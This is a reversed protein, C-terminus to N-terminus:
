PADRKRIRAKSARDYSDALAFRAKVRFEELRDRRRTLENVAMTELVRGQREILARVKERAASRLLTSISAPASVPAVAKIERRLRRMLDGYGQYSEVATQRTRAFDRHQRNLANLEQDLERLHTRADEYRKDYEAYWSWELVGRLRKLREGFRQGAEDSQPTVIKELHALQESMIQEGATVLLDPRPAKQMAQLQQEIRDRQELRSRMESDLRSFERDIAPLLPEYHASRQRIIDEFADLDGSWVELRKHLQELDLYNKLSEQFDNSAMLDLLYFTEPTEPLKRLSVIRNDDQKLEERALSKLFAGKRIIVISADLKGIEKGFAELAAEYKLAATSYVGLRSYAYPVALMAEQVATDTVERAALTSWPVLARKFGEQLADAWGSSLLARNSFPGSLRVRDLVEKAPEFQSDGLLKEGLILNAKDKIALVARDDSEVRGTRDLYERGQQEDGNRLLAIALNYSGFGELGSEGQLGKLIRVAEANSGVAMSINARLFALDSRITAPVAGSILEVAHLANEPQDKQFYMRALRFIADNRLGDRVNGEIVAKMARGFRQHMRYNLEFDGALRDSYSFSADSESEDPGPSQAQRADLRAIAEFWEGQYAYYLADGYDYRSKMDESTAIGAALAPAVFLLSALLAMFRSM